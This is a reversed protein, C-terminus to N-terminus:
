HGPSRLATPPMFLRLVFHFLFNAGDLIADAGDACGDHPQHLFFLGNFDDARDIRIRRLGPAIKAFHGARLVRRPAHFNRRFRFFYQFLVRVHHDM